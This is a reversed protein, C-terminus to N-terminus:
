RTAGLLDGALGLLLLPPALLLALLLRALRGALELAIGAIAALTTM